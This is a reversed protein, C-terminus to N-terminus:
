TAIFLLEWGSTKALAYRYHRKHLIVKSKYRHLLRKLAISNPIGGSRYSVVITSNRFKDFLYDFATEIKPRDLWISYHSKLTKRRSNYDIMSQWDDYKSMGELFHYYDRYDIGGSKPSMYPSDIYVLDYEGPIDMVDMNLARNNKGNSFVHRNAEEAFRRFLDTFNSNWSTLNGFSRNVDAFRMYLNARHFLNYPRKMVCAQFLAHLALARKYRDPLFRINTLAVDLWRNEAHTFYLGRFNREIFDRYTVGTHRRVISDIEQATLFDHSNEILALGSYYNFKLLDNHTVEKMRIKAYYAL